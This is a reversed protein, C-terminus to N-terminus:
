RTASRPDSMLAAHRPTTLRARHAAEVEGILRELTERDFPALEEITFTRFGLAAFAALREAIQEVNGAWFSDDVTDPDLTNPSSSSIWCPEPRPRTTM